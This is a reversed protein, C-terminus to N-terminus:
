AHSSLGLGLEKIRSQVWPSLRLSDESAAVDEPSPPPPESMEKRGRDLMRYKEKLKYICSKTVGYKNALEEVSWGACWLLRLEAIDVNWYKVTM